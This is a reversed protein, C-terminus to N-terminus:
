READSIMEDIISAASMLQETQGLSEGSLLSQSQLRGCFGEAFEGHTM